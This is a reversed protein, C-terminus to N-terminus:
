GFIYLVKVKDTYEEPIFGQDLCMYLSLYYCMSKNAQNM